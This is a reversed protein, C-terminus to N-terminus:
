PLWWPRVQGDHEAEDGRPMMAPLSAKSGSDPVHNLVPVHPRVLLRYGGRVRDWRGDAIAVVHGAECEIARKNPSLDPSVALTAVFPADCLAGSLPLPCADFFTDGPAMAEHETTPDAGRGGTRLYEAWDAHTQRHEEIVAIAEEHTM